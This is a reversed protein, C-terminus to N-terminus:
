LYPALRRVAKVDAPSVQHQVNMVRKRKSSKHELM